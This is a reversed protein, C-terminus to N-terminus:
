PGGFQRKHNYGQDYDADATIQEIVFVTLFFDRDSLAFAGFFNLSRYLGQSAMFRSHREHRGQEGSLDGLSVLDRM